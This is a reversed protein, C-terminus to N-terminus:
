DFLFSISLQWTYKNVFGSKRVANQSVMWQFQLLFDIKLDGIYTHGLGFNIPIQRTHARWDVTWEGDSKLYSNKSFHYTIFPQFLLYNQSRKHSNGAFSIPNQALFGFQWNAFKLISIGFAPGLQWKGQGADLKTATPFIAMPGFGWRGWSEELVFLDFFQTDGLSTGRTTKASNPLTPIQFKIRILQEFPFYNTRDLAIVPKVLGKNAADHTGYNQPSYDNELQLQSLNTIPNSARESLTASWGALPLLLLLLRIM